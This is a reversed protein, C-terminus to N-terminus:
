LCVLQLGFCNVTLWFIRTLIDNGIGFQDFYEVVGFSGSLCPFYNIKRTQFYTLGDIHHLHRRHNAGIDFLLCVYHNNM